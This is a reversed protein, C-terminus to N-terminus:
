VFLLSIYVHVPSQSLRRKFALIFLFYLLSSCSFPLSNQDGRLVHSIVEGWLRRPGAPFQTLLVPLLSASM